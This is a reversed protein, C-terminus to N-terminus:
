RVIQRYTQRYFHASGESACSPILRRTFELEELRGGRGRFEGRKEKVASEERRLGMLRGTWRGDRRNRMGRGVLARIGDRQLGIGTGDLGKM